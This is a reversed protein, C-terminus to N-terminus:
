WEFYDKFRFEPIESNYLVSWDEKWDFIGDRSLMDMGFSNCEVIFPDNDVCLDIVVSNYIKSINDSHADFFKLVSDKVIDQDCEDLYNDPGAVARLCGKHFYCRCENEIEVFKRMFLCTPFKDNIMWRTRNSNQLAVSAEVSNDFIPISYDKPSANCFRVFKYQEINDNLIKNVSTWTDVKQLISMPTPINYEILKPYWYCGWYIQKRKEIIYDYFKIDCTVFERNHEIPIDISEKIDDFIWKPINVAFETKTIILDEM